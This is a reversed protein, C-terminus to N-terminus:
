ERKRKRKVGGRNRAGCTHPGRAQLQSRGRRTRATREPTRPAAAASAADAKPTTSASPPPMRVDSPKPALVTSRPWQLWGPARPSENGASSTSIFRCACSACVCLPAGAFPM